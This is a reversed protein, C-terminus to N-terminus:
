GSPSPCRRPRPTGGEAGVVVLATRVAREGAPRRKEGPVRADFRSRLRRRTLGDVEADPLVGDILPSVDGHTIQAHQAVDVDTAPVGAFADAQEERSRARM